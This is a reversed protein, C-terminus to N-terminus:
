CQSAQQANPECSESTCRCSPRWRSTAAMTILPLGGRMGVSWLSCRVSCLYATAWLSSAASRWTTILRLAPPCCTLSVYGQFLLLVRVWFRVLAIEERSLGPLKLDHEFVADRLVVQYSCGNIVCVTTFMCRNSCIREIFSGM